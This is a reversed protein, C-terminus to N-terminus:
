TRKTAKKVTRTTKRPAPKPATEEDAPAEGSPEHPNKVEDDYPNVVTEDYPFVTDKDGM